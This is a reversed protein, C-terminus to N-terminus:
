AEVPAAAWRSVSRTLAEAVAATHTVLETTPGLQCTVAPMRTERLIPVRMGQAPACPLPLGSLATVVFEALRRGGPSEFGETAYFSIRCPGTEEASLGLFLAAGAENAARAQSSPDAQSLVVVEAGADQLARAVAGALSGVGPEEGIVVLRGTLAKPARRLEERERVGAVTESHDVRTGLRELEAIVERGCVGDCTLGANRQFDRLARETDPGFIGDVRGADFGLASLKRQLAAVDDGRLMPSRLYLLRDGLEWGAEVLAAWTVGDCRGTPHLGRSAQFAEVATETHTGFRGREAPPIAHGAAVLRRQLDRVAPGRAGPELPLPDSSRPEDPAM